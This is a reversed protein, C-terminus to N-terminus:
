KGSNMERECFKDFEREPPYEIAIDDILPTPPRVETAWKTLLADVGYGLEYKQSTDQAATEFFSLNVRMPAFENSFDRKVDQIYAMTEAESAFLDPDVARETELPDGGFMDIKTFVVEIPVSLSLQKSDLLGRLLLWADRQASQRLDLRRLKAGDVLLTLHDARGLETIDSAASPRNVVAEFLEGPLDCFLLDTLKLTNATALQLHLYRRTALKSREIHPVLEMSATRSRWSRRELGMLTFSDSFSFQAFPGRQFCWFLSALLTTKGSEQAGALLIVQARARSTIEATEPSTLAEGSSISFIEEAPVTEPPTADAEVDEDIMNEQTSSDLPQVEDDTQQEPM